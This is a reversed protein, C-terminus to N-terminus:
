YLWKFIFFSPYKSIKLIGYSLLTTCAVMLIYYWFANLSLGGIKIFVIHAYFRVFLHFGFILTSLNRIIKGNKIYAVKLHISCIALFSFLTVFWTSFIFEQGEYGMFEISKFAEINMVGFTVLAMLFYKKACVPIKEEHAYYGILVFPFAVLLGNKAAPLLLGLSDVVDFFLVDETFKSRYVSSMVEVFYLAFSLGLIVHNNLQCRQKLFYLIWVAIILSLFYWFQTYSGKLFFIRFFYPVFGSLGFGEKLYSYVIQPFYLLTYISYLLIIRKTYIYLKKKDGIKAAVFFGSVAFFFPVALRFLIQNFWFFGTDGLEKVPSIHIAVVFLAAIFKFYDIAAYETKEKLFGEHMERVKEWLVTQIEKWKWMPM